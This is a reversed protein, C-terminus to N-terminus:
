VKIKKIDKNQSSSLETSLDKNLKFNDFCAQMQKNLNQNDLSIDVQSFLGKINEGMHDILSQTHYHLLMYNNFHHATIIIWCNMLFDGDNRLDKHLCNLIYKDKTFLKIGLSKDKQFRESAFLITRPNVNVSSHVIDEDDKLRDSVYGLVNSVKAAELVFKKDDKFKDNVLEMNSGNTKVAELAIDRDNILNKCCLELIKIDNMLLLNIGQKCIELVLDKEKSNFLNNGMYEAIEDHLMLEEENDNNKANKENINQIIKDWETLIRSAKTKTDEM